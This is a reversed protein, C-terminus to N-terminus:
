LPIIQTARRGKFLLTLQHFGAAFIMPWGLVFLRLGERYLGGKWTRKMWFLIPGGLFAYRKSRNRRGHAHSGRREEQMILRLAGACTAVQHITNSSHIRYCVTLPSLIQVTRGSQLLRILVELDELPFIETPWGLVRIFADRNIVLASASARYPRDKELLSEYDVVEIQAPASEASIQPLAGEFWRMASLIINPHLRDVIESYVALAWPLLLDDGDLFVLFDGKAVAIGVNRARCAGVNEELKILQISNGFKELIAPSDDTSADDIVIIEKNAHSQALASGV